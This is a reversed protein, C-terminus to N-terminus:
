DIQKLVLRSSGIEVDALASTFSPLNQNKKNVRIRCHAHVDCAFKKQSMILHICMM